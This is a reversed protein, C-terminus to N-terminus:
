RLVLLTIMHAERNRNAYDRDFRVVCPIELDVSKHVDDVEHQKVIHFHAIVDQDVGSKGNGSCAGLCNWLQKEPDVILSPNTDEHFPCLGQYVKGARKLKIGKSEIFTVLDHREKVEQILHKDILM